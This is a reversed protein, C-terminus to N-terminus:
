LYQSSCHNTYDCDFTKLEPARKQNNYIVQNKENIYRSGFGFWKKKYPIQVLLLTPKQYFDVYGIKKLYQHFKFLPNKLEKEAVCVSEYTKTQENWIKV